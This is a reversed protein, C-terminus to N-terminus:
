EMIRVCIHYLSVINGCRVHKTLAIKIDSYNFEKDISEDFSEINYPYKHEKIHNKYKEWFNYFNKVSVYSIIYNCMLGTTDYGFIKDIHTNVYECNLSTLNMAEIIAYPISNEHVMIDIEGSSKGEKSRGWRTQDKVSYGTAELLSAIFGNRDDESAKRYLNNGQLKICASIITELLDDYSYRNALKLINYIAEEKNPGYLEIRFNEIETQTLRPFIKKLYNLNINDGENIDNLILQKLYIFFEREECSIDKDLMINIKLIISKYNYKFVPELNYKILNKSINKIVNYNSVEDKYDLNKLEYFHYFLCRFEREYDFWTDPKKKKLLEIKSICRVIGVYVKNSCENDSILINEWLLSMINKYLEETYSTELDIAEILYKSIYMLIEADIRREDNIIAINFLNVAENMINKYDEKCYIENAQFLNILGLTYNAESKIEYNKVNIKELLVKKIDEKEREIFLSLYKLRLCELAADQEKEWDDLLFSLFKRQSLKNRYVMILLGQLAKIKFFTNEEDDMIVDDIFSFIEKEKHLELEQIFREDWFNLKEKEDVNFYDSFINM